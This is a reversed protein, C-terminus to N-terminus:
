SWCALWSVAELVIPVHSGSGFAPGVPELLTCACDELTVLPAALLIGLRPAAILHAVLTIPHMQLPLSVGREREAKTEIWWLASSTVSPVRIKGEERAM